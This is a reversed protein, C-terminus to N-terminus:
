LCTPQHSKNAKDLGPPRAAQQHVNSWLETQKLPPAARPLVQIISTTRESAGGATLSFLFSRKGKHRESVRSGNPDSGAAAATEVRSAM